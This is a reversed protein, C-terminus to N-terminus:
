ELNELKRLALKYIHIIEDKRLYLKEIKVGKDHTEVYYNESFFEWLEEKLGIEKQIIIEQKSNFLTYSCSANMYLKRPSNNESWGEEEYQFSRQAPTTVRDLM